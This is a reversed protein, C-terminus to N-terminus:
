TAKFWGTLAYRPQQAFPTVYSVSHIHKVDFLSLTNFEPAWSETTTGDEEYFQLLGGWDPHWQPALNIVYALRRREAEVVDNHRTLFQGPSYRTAQMNVCNIDSMGTLARIKEFFTDNNIASFANSLDSVPDDIQVKRRGYIFGIGSAANTMLQCYVSQKQKDTLSNWQENTLEVNKGEHFLATNFQIDECLTKSLAKAKSIDLFDSIRVRKNIGFGRKYQTLDVTPNFFVEMIKSNWVQM